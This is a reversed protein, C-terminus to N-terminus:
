IILMGPGLGGLLFLQVHFSIMGGSVRGLLVSM